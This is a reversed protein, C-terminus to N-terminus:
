CVGKLHLTASGCLLLIGPEGGVWSFREASHGVSTFNICLNAFVNVLSACVFRRSTWPETYLLPLFLTLSRPHTPTPPAASLSETHKRVCQHSFHGGRKLPGLMCTGNTFEVSPEEVRLEAKVDAHSPRVFFEAGVQKRGEITEFWISGVCWPLSVKFSHVCVCFVFHSGDGGKWIPRIFCFCNPWYRRTKVRLRSGPYVTLSRPGPLPILLVFTLFTDFTLGSPLCHACRSGPRKRDSHQTLRRRTGTRM